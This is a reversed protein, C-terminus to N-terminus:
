KGEKVPLTIYFVAGGKGSEASIFGDHDAMIRQCIALGLGTGTKKTSFYPLFIKALIDRSMGPGTDKVTIVAEKNDAQYQTSISLIGKNGMAELANRIINSLVQQIKDRDLKLLPLNNDYKSSRKVAPKVAAHFNVTNKVLENLNETKFVPPSMRAYDSFDKIIRTMKSIEEDVMRTTNHLEKKFKKDQVAGPLKSYSKQLTEVSVQIPFLPNKIEHALKRAVERWAAIRETQLLKDRQMSQSSLLDQLYNNLQSIEDDSNRRKLHYEKGSLFSKLSSSLHIVPKVTIYWIWCAIVIFIIFIILNYLIFQQRIMQLKLSEHTEPVVITVFLKSNYLDSCYYHYLNTGITIEGATDKIKELDPVHNDKFSSTIVSDETHIIIRLDPSRPVNELIWQDIYYGILLIGYVEDNSKIPNAATLTLKEGAGRVKYWSLQLTHNGKVAESILQNSVPYNFELRSIGTAVVTGKRDSIELRDVNYDKQKIFIKDILTRQYMQVDPYIAFQIYTDILDNDASIDKVQDQLRQIINNYTDNIIQETQEINVSQTEQLKRSYQDYFIISLYINPIVLLLLIPLILKLTLRM